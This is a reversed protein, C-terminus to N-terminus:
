HELGSCTGVLFGGPPLNDIHLVQCFIFECGEMWFADVCCFLRPERIFDITLILAALIM